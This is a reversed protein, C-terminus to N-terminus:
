RKLRYEILEYYRKSDGSAAGTMSKLRADAGLVWWYYYEKDAFIADISLFYPYDVDTSIGISSGALLVFDGERFIDELWDANAFEAKCAPNYQWCISSNLLIYEYEHEYDYDSSINIVGPPELTYDNALSSGAAIVANRAETSTKISTGQRVWKIMGSYSVTLSDSTKTWSFNFVYSDQKPPIEPTEDDCGSFVLTFALAFIWM